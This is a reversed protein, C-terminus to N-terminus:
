RLDRGGRRVPLPTSAVVDFRRGEGGHLPRRIPRLDARGAKLVLHLRCTRFRFRLNGQRTQWRLLRALRSCSTIVRSEDGWLFCPSTYTVAGMTSRGASNAIGCLRVMSTEMGIQEFGRAVVVPQLAPGIRHCISDHPQRGSHQGHRARAEGAAARGCALVRDVGPRKDPTDFIRAQHGLEDRHLPAASGAASVRRGPPLCSQKQKTERLDVIHDAQDFTGHVITV